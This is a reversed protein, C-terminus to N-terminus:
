VTKVENEPNESILMMTRYYAPIEFVDKPELTHKDFYPAKGDFYDSSLSKLMQDSYKFFTVLRNTEKCCSTLLGQVEILLQRLENLVMQICDGIKNVGTTEM